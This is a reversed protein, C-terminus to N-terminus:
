KAVHLLRGHIPFVLGDLERRASSQEAALEIFSRKRHPQVLQTYLAPLEYRGKGCVLSIALRSVDHGDELAFLSLGDNFRM